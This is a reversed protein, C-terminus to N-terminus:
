FERKKKEVDCHTPINAPSDATDYQARPFNGWNLSASKRLPKGGFYIIFIDRVKADSERQLAM